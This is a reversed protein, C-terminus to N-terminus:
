NIQPMFTKTDSVNGDVVRVTIPCGREYTLLGYNVQLKGKKRVRNYGRHALPCKDGEFYSSSLDYLLNSGDGLHCKTLKPDIYKKKLWFGIWRKTFIMKRPM